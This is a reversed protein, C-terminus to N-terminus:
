NENGTLVDVMCLLLYAIKGCTTWMYSTFTRNEMFKFQRQCETMIHGCWNSEPGTILEYPQMVLPVKINKAMKPCVILSGSWAGEGFWISSDIQKSSSLRRDGSVSCIGEDLGRTLGSTCSSWGSGGSGSSSSYSSSSWTGDTTSRLNELPVGVRALPSHVLRNNPWNKKGYFQIFIWM